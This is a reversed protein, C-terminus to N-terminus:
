SVGHRPPDVCCGSCRLTHESYLWRIYIYMCVDGLGALRHDVSGFAHVWGIGACARGIETDARGRQGRAGPGLQAEISGVRESQALQGQV